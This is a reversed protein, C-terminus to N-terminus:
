VFGTKENVFTTKTELLLRKRECCFGNENAVRGM